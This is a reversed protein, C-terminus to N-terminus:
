MYEEFDKLPADFDEAIFEFRDALLGLKRKPPQAPQEEMAQQSLLFKLFTGAQRQNDENLQAWAEPVWAPMAM